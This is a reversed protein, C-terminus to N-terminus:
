LEGLRNWADRVHALLEDDTMDESDRLKPDIVYEDLVYFLDDLIREFPQRLREGAALAQRRGALWGKAFEPAGEDGAVFRQMYALLAGIGSGAPVDRPAAWARPARKPSENADSM